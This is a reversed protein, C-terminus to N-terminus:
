DAVAPVSRRKDRYGQWFYVALLALALGILAFGLVMTWRIGTGPTQIRRNLGITTTGASTGTQNQTPNICHGSWCALGKPGTQGAGAGIGMQHPFHVNFDNLVQHTTLRGSGRRLIHWVKSVMHAEGYISGSTVQLKQNGVFSSRLYMTTGKAPGQGFLYVEMHQTEKLCAAPPHKTNAPLSLCIPSILAEALMEGTYLIQDHPGTLIAEGSFFGGLTYTLQVNPHILDPLVPQTDSQFNELYADLILTLPPLGKTHVRTSIIVRDVLDFDPEMGAPAFYITSGAFNVPFGKSKGSDGAAGALGTASLLGAAFAILLVLACRKSLLYGKRRIEREAM